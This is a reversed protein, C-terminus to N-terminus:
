SDKPKRRSVLYELMAEPRDQETGPVERGPGTQWENGVSWSPLWRLYVKGMGACCFLTGENDM